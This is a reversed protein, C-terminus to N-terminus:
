GSVFQKYIDNCSLDLMTVTLYLRCVSGKQVYLPCMNLIKQDLMKQAAYVDGVAILWNIAIPGTVHIFLVLTCLFGQLVCLRLFDTQM